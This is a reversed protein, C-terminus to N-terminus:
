PARPRRGPPGTSRALVIGGRGTVTVARSVADITVVIRGAHVDHHHGNCLPAQTALDTRGDDHTWPTLHHIECHGFAVTCGPVACTPYMARLARRQDATALRRARGVNLVVSDGGLVIPIIDAECAIRRVVDVPVRGGGDRRVDCAPSMTM